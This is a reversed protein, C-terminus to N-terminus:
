RRKCVMKGGVGAGAGKLGSGAKIKKIAGCGQGGDGSYFKGM